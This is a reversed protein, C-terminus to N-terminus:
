QNESGSFPLDPRLFKMKEKLTEYAKQDNEYKYVELLPIMLEIRSPSFELGKELLNKGREFYKKDQTLTAAELNLFSNLYLNRLGVFKQENYDYYDNSLKMLADVAEKKPVIKNIKFMRLYDNFFKFLSTSAEELGVPSPFNLAKYINELREDVNQMINLGYFGKKILFNKQLPSYSGWYFITGILATLIFGFILNKISFHLKAAYEISNPIAYYNIFFALFLFLVLYIPLVEFLFFGQVLYAIPSSFLILGTLSLGGLLGKPASLSPATELQTSWSLNVLQRDAPQRDAPQRILKFLLRYYFYFIALYAILLLIGGNILHDLFINHARDFFSEVGFHKPNYYKDFVYPFNEAGWGLIPRELFGAFASEWTWFRQELSSTKTFRLIQPFGEWFNADKTLFLILPLSILIILIIILYPKSIVPKKLLFINLILFVILGIFIGLIAGRTQTQWIILGQFVLIAALIIKWSTKKTNLFLFLGLVISILLYAALYSPNGLTGSIREGAGFITLFKSFPNNLQFVAYFSILLSIGLNFKLLDLIEEKETFLLLLLAFFIFYHIIQFAGEGREFNSWFSSNPNVGLLAALLFVASFATISIFIPNTLRSKIKQLEQGPNKAFILHLFFFLLALEITTRFFIAKGAIFPSFFAISIVLVSLLSLVIFTKSLKIFM